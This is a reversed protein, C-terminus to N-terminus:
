KPSFRWVTVGQVIGSGDQAFVIVAYDSPNEPTAPAPTRETELPVALRTVWSKATLAPMGALTLAAGATDSVTTQAVIVEWPHNPLTPITVPKNKVALVRFSLAGRAATSRNFVTFRVELRRAASDYGSAVTDIAFDLWTQTEGLRLRQILSDYEGQAFRVDKERIGFPTNSGDLKVQPLSTFGFGDNRAQTAPTIWPDILTSPFAVHYNVVILDSRYLASTTDLYPALRSEADPCSACGYAGFSELIHRRTVTHSESPALPTFALAPDIEQLPDNFSLCANFGFGALAVLVGAVVVTQLRRRLSVLLAHDM